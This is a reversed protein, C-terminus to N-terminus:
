YWHNAWQEFYTWGHAGHRGCHVLNRFGREVLECAKSLEHRFVCERFEGTVFGFAFGHQYGQLTEAREAVLATPVADLIMPPSLTRTVGDGAPTVQVRLYRAEGSVPAYTCAAGSTLLTGSYSGGTNSYVRSMAYGPDQTTRKTSGLKAGVRITFYGDSTATSIRQSEEYLICDQAPNLIQIKLSIDSDLMARTGAADSYLRGDLAFTQVAEEIAIASQSFLLALWVFWFKFFSPLHRPGLM